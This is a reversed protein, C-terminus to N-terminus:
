SRCIPGYGDKTSQDRISDVLTLTEAMGVTVRDISEILDSNNLHRGQYRPLSRHTTLSSLGSLMGPISDASTSTSRTPVPPAQVVEVVEAPGDVSTTWTFTRIMFTLGALLAMSALFNVMQSAM